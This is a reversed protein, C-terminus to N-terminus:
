VADAQLMRQNRKVVKLKWGRFFNKSFLSPLLNALWASLKLWGRPNVIGVIWFVALMFMLATALYLAAFGSNRAWIQFNTKEPLTESLSASTETSVYSSHVSVIERLLLNQSTMGAHLVYYDDQIQEVLESGPCAHVTCLAFSLLFISLIKKM